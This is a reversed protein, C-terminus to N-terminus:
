GGEGFLFEEPSVGRVNGAAFRDAGVVTLRAQPFARAFWAFELADTRGRKVEV